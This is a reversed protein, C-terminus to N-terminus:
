CNSLIHKVRQQERVRTEDSMTEQQGKENKWELRRATELQKQAGRAWNCQADREKGRRAAAEREEKDRQASRERYDAERQKWDPMAPATAAPKDPMAAPEIGHPSKLIRGPPTGPPPPRDSFVRAGKDDLWSYQAHALLSTLALAGAGLLRLWRANM